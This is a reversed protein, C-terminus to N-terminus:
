DLGSAGTTLLRVDSPELDREAAAAAAVSAFPPPSGDSAEAPAKNLDPPPLTAYPTKSRPAIFYSTEGGAESQAADAFHPGPTGDANVIGKSLLNSITQGPRPRYLGFLHDFSRNEGIIIIVHQIPTATPGGGASGAPDAANGDQSHGVLLAALALVKAATRM